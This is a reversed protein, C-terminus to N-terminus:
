RKKKPRAEPPRWEVLRDIFARVHPAMMERERYVVAVNVQSEVIGALVQVLAGSELLDAVLFTPLLAIGVGDAAAARLLRVDNSSFASEVHVEGRGVRWSAQPLEGRAFGTVCRHQKLDKVSRPTGHAALYAPSAVAISKDRQVLRAMLGPQLEGAARLAVDYGERVLDVLRTSFDVQLRVEPHENAFGTLLAMLAPDNQPPLSVRLEGRMGDGAGQVSAEAQAVSDLVIRAQRYFREGADTLALSRTTRRLLRTGLREELRSLRRGVTARPTGLEAAARSFSKAEVVRTFALLEATELPQHMQMM